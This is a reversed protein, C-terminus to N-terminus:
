RQGRLDIQMVFEERVLDDPKGEYVVNFDKRNLSFEAKASVTGDAITVTAPFTISKTVGRVTLNGTVTYTTADAGPEIATSTFTATPFTAVDLFDPSKIHEDLKESMMGRDDPDTIVSATQVEFSLAASQPTGDGPDLTGSWTQFLLTHARTVKSALVTVTGTLPIPGSGALVATDAGAPVAVAAGSLDSGAAADAATDAPMGADAATDANGATDSAAGSDPATGGSVQAAPVSDAPNEACATLPLIAALAAAAIVTNWRRM